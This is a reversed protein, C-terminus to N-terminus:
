HGGCGCGGGGCGCGEDELDSEEPLRDLEITKMVYKNVVDQIKGLEQQAYLFDRTIPNEYLKFREEEFQDIEEKTLRIGQHQKQQLMRQSDFLHNYQNIADESEMFVNIMKKLELFAPQNLITRCLEETKEIISNMEPKPRM